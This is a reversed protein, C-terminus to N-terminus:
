SLLSKIRGSLAGMDARGHVKPRLVGMVKGMDKISEAGTEAIAQQVLQDLEAESLQEPLYKELVAINAREKEALDDRGGDVFQKAADTCQKVMKQIVQLVGNDDLEVRDDVERRQIAARLMRVTELAVTDKERMASKMDDLIRQKLDSM